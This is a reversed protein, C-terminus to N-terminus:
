NRNEAPNDFHIVGFRGGGIYSVTDGAELPEGESIRAIVCDFHVPAGSSKDAVAASIDKIPKGCYPCDPAPLPDTSMKPPVWRPREFFGGRNKDYRAPDGAKAATNAGTNTGAHAVAHASAHASADNERERHKFSKRRNNGRNDGGKGSGSM